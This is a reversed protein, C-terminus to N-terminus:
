GAVLICDRIINYMSFQRAKYVGFDAVEIGNHPGQKTANTTNTTIISKLM